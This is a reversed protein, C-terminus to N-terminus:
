TLCPCKWCARASRTWSRPRAASRAREYEVAEMGNANLHEVFANAWVYTGSDMSAPSDLAVKVEALATAAFGLVLAASAGALAHKFTM